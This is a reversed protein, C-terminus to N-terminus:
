KHLIQFYAKAKTETKLNFYCMNILSINSFHPIVYIFQLFFVYLALLKNGKTKTWLKVKCNLNVCVCVCVIQLVTHWFKWKINNCLHAERTAWITFFRDAIRSVQTRDRPQSSGRSSPMAVWELIRATSVGHVSSGPPSCDVPDCLIQCWQAVLCLVHCLYNKLWQSHQYFAEEETAWISFFRGIIHSVWTWDRPWSFGRSSPSAVQELIRAQLIRHVSFGPWARTWPNVFLWVCSLSQWKVGDKYFVALKICLFEIMNNYVCFIM